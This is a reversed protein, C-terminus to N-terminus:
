IQELPKPQINITEMCLLLHSSNNFSILFNTMPATSVRLPAIIIVLSPFWKCDDTHDDTDDPQKKKQNRQKGARLTSRIVFLIIACLLFRLVICLSLQDYFSLCADGCSRSVRRPHRYRLAILGVANVAM